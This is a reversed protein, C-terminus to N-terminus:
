TKEQAEDFCGSADVRAARHASPPWATSSSRMGSSFGAPSAERFLREFSPEALDRALREIQAAELYALVLRFRAIAVACPNLDVGYVQALAMNAHSKSDLAPKSLRHAELLRRFAGLLFHGSGCTPDLVRVADLGFTEIAPTLTQDLILEEVFDPTQLLAFRERVGASIDQYLDGLFRTGPRSAEDFRFVLTGEADTERLLALIERVVAGSPALKWAPNKEPGLLDEAGPASAVERFVTLLYDRDSLTPFLEAFLAQSDNAGPGGIRAQALLGRDELTRVFVVSLLWRVGVQELTKTVWVALSDSTRHTRQEEAHERALAAAVVPDKARETLDPLLAKELFVSLERTLDRAGAAKSRAASKKKAAM